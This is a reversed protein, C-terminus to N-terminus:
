PKIFSSLNNKNTIHAEREDILTRAEDQVSELGFEKLHADSLRNLKTILKSLFLDTKEDVSVNYIVPFAIENGSDMHLAYSEVLNGDEDFIVNFSVRESPDDPYEAEIYVIRSLRLPDDSSHGWGEDEVVHYGDFDFNDYAFNALGMKKDINNM